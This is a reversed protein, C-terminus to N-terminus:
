HERFMAKVAAVDIVSSDDAWERWPKRRLSVAGASAPSCDSHM